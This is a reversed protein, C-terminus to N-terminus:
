RAILANDSPDFDRGAIKILGHRVYWDITAHVGAETSWQSVYGMRQRAKTLDFARNYAFFGVRRRSLPPRTRTVRCVAECLAGALWVPALPVHWSPLTVGGERAIIAALDNLSIPEDSAINFAEGDVAERPATASLLFSTTQDDIYGLHALTEGSGIMLFRRTLISKFLKLQRRDGPGYVMAPRNVTVIMDDPGLSRGFELVAREGALKTRHYHDMPNYPSLETAPIDIVDGHVGITSCHVFRRVGVRQASQALKLAGLHNVKDYETEGSETEQFMAAINFVIDTGRLLEDWSQDSALDLREARYGHARMAEAEPRYLVTATVDLKESALLRFLAGGIFGAAGTVLVRRGRLRDIAERNVGPISRPRAPLEAAEYVWSEGSKRILAPPPQVM